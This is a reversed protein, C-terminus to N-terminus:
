KEKQQREKSKQPEEADLQLLRETNAKYVLLDRKEKELRYYDAYKEKKESLLAAYEKQLSSVSPLKKLGLEDFAKKAAKHIIIDSEHESLYKKSYGAKRYGVYIDRTKSYNIIHTRLVSIEAMRKEASKIESLVANSKASVESSEAMSKLRVIKMKQDYASGRGSNIKAEIASLLNPRKEKSVTRRKRHPNHTKAGAIVARLAEESYDDGLSKLRINQKQGARSFTINKGYSIEYGAQTLMTMLADFSQPKKTLASDIAARLLDRNCPKANCGLWKNYSDGHPHPHEIVSLQYEMCILDSLKRVAQGSRHFDRFKSQCDLTTSNWIIHNHIHAKDTHTAVIFAHNGKTFRMAFEYGIKNALEPTVEGPKFSQRIQYAIVDNQQTRGTFQRYQRKSLLFEMDATKPDCAYATIYEGGAITKGRNIHMPIIRTTALLLVEKRDVYFLRYSESGGKCYDM